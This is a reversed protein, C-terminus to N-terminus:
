ELGEITTKITNKLGERDSLANLIADDTLNVVQDDKVILLTQGYVEYKQVRPDDENEEWNISILEEMSGYYEFLAEKTVEEIAMCTECRHTGHFYYVRVDSTQEAPYGSGASEIEIRNKANLTCISILFLSLIAVFIKKM